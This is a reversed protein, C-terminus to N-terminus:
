SRLIYLKEGGNTLKLYTLRRLNSTTAWKLCINTKKGVRRITNQDAEVLDQYLIGIIYLQSM